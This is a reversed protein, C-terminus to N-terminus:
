NYQTRTFLTPWTRSAWQLFLSSTILEQLATEYVCSFKRYEGVFTPQNRLNRTIQKRLKRNFNKLYIGCQLLYLVYHRRFTILFWNRCKKSKNQDIMFTCVNKPKWFFSKLNISEIYYFDVNKMYIKQNRIKFKQRATADISNNRLWFKTQLFPM